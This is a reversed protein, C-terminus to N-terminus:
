ARARDRLTGGHQEIVLDLLYEEQWRQYEFGEFVDNRYEADTEFLYPDIGQEILGGEFEKQLRALAVQANLGAEQLRAQASILAAEKTAGAQIAANQISAAAGINAATITTKAQLRNGELVGYTSLANQISSERMKAYDLGLQGLLAAKNNALEISLDALHRGAESSDLVGRSIMNEVAADASRRYQQDLLKAMPDFSGAIMEEYTPLGEINGNLRDILTQEFQQNVSFDGQVPTWSAPTSSSSMFSSGLAAGLKSADFGELPNTTPKGPVPLAPGPPPTPRGITNPPLGSGSTSDVMAGTGSSPSAATPNVRPGTGLRSKLLQSGMRRTTALSEIPYNAM